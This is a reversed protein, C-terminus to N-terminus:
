AAPEEGFTAIMWQAAALAVDPPLWLEVEDPAAGCRVICDGRAHVKLRLYPGSLSTGERPDRFEAPRTAETNMARQAWESAKSMDDGAQRACVGKAWELADIVRGCQTCRAWGPALTADRFSPVHAGTNTCVWRTDDCNFPRNTSADDIDLGRISQPPTAQVRCTM